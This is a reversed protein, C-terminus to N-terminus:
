TFTKKYFFIKGVEGLSLIQGKLCDIEEQHRNIFLNNVFLQSKSKILNMELYLVQKIMFTIYFNCDLCRKIAKLMKQIRFVSKLIPMTDVNIRLVFLIM